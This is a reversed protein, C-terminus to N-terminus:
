SIGVETLGGPVPEGSADLPSAFGTRRGGSLWERFAEGAEEANDAEVVAEATVLWEGM